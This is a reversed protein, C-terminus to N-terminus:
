NFNWRILHALEILVNEYEHTFRFIFINRNVHFCCICKATNRKWETFLIIILLSFRVFRQLNINIFTAKLKKERLITFGQIYTHLYYLRRFIIVMAETYRIM